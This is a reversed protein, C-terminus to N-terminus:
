NSKQFVQVIVTGSDNEDNKLIYEIFSGNYHESYREEVIIEKYEYVNISPNSSFDDRTTDRTLNIVKRNYELDHIIADGEKTFSTVRIKDRIDKRVNNMFDDIREINCVKDHGWVVDGYNEAIEFTYKKPLTSIDVYDYPNISEEISRNNEKIKSQYIQNDELGKYKLQNSSCGSMIIGLTLVAYIFIKLNM